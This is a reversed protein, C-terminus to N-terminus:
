SKNSVLGALALAYALENAFATTMNCKSVASELIDVTEVWDNSLSATLSATVDAAVLNHPNKSLWQRSHLLASEFDTSLYAAWTEAEHLVRSDPDSKRVAEVVEHAEIAESVRRLKRLLLLGCLPDNNSRRWASRLASLAEEESIRGLYQFYLSIQMSRRGPRTRIVSRRM